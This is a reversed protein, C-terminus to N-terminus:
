VLPKQMWVTCASHGTNGIPRELYEFGHRTYLRQAGKMYHMTELYCEFYGLAAASDLALTLLREGLGLGRIRNDFYMKQLECVRNDGGQLPAIGGGGFVHSKDAVVWYASRPAQYTEYMCELSKDAYTTRETPVGLKLLVKRIIAYLLANDKPLIPRLHLDDPNM